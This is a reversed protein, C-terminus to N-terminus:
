AVILVGKVAASVSIFIFCWSSKAQSDIGKLCILTCVPARCNWDKLVRVSVEQFLNLIVVLLWCGGSIIENFWTSFDARLCRSFRGGIYVNWCWYLGWDAAIVFSVGEGFDSNVVEVAGIYIYKYISWLRWLIYSRSSRKYDVEVDSVQKGSPIDTIPIFRLCACKISKMTGNCLVM